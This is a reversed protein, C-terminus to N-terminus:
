EWMKIVGDWGCTFMTSPLIPHWVCGIAPGKDHARYKQLMKQRKWEWFCLKGNGDGCCLFQGDPSIAIDCAYGSVQHGRFRKKKQVAFRGQGQYVMIQNDLSQGAMYAGSPHLTMVPMSHMTPDSIYKIPVGIDWEWVLVKKDDSSTIMKIGHDEVFTITNVPALHHNYEQTIEGSKSDYAVIKNDSCGVVFISDDVPYFKVVYPVRRNTYSGLVQGSETDWLRLFRDFSASIFKTGDNNFQVDRVAASHGIYTRMVTKNLVSWVKCKGDLGASLLLHGTQPFLRIRHVGKNHGTFRAVCKKPVYCKHHDMDGFEVGHAYEAPPTIWSQGKYNTEEEPPRHFKTTAEMAQPDESMLRPPLLHSMKREVLTDFNQNDKEKAEGGDVLPKGNADLGKQRNREVMYGREAIVEMPLSSLVGGVKEFDTRQDNLVDREEKTPPGWIGYHIDDDDDHVLPDLQKSKKTRKSKPELPQLGEEEEDDDDDDDDGKVELIDKDDGGEEKGQKNNDANDEEKTDDEENENENTAYTGYNPRKRRQYGYEGREVRTGVDDPALAVGSRQFANREEKFTTEDFAVNSQLNGSPKFNFNSNQANSADNPDISLAPGQIPQLLTSKLPNNMLLLKSSSPNTSNSTSTAHISTDQKSHITLANSINNNNNPNSSSFSQQQQQQQLLARKNHINALISPQPAAQIYQRQFAMKSAMGSVSINTPAAKTLEDNDSDGSNSSSSSAYGSLLDM